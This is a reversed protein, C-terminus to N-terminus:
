AVTHWGMQLWSLRPIIDQEEDDDSEYEEGDVVKPIPRRISQWPSVIKKALKHAKWDTKTPLVMNVTDGALNKKLRPWQSSPFLVREEDVTYPPLMTLTADEVTFRSGMEDHGDTLMKAQVQVYERLSLMERKVRLFSQGYLARVADRKSKGTKAITHKYGACKVYVDTALRTMRANNELPKNPYIGPYVPPVQGSKIKPVGQDHVWARTQAWGFLPENQHTLRFGVHARITVDPADNSPAVEHVLREYFTMMFGPPITVEKLQKQYFALLRPSTLKVFGKNQGAVELHTKPCCLFRQNRSNLNIWGGFVDDGDVSGEAIDRHVLEETPTKDKQRVMMRDFPKEVKRGKLPLVNQSLAEYLAIERIARAFPHHFSSPNGLAGFGGESPVWTPDNKFDDPTARPRFEPSEHMMQWFRDQAEKLAATSAAFQTRVICVGYKELCEFSKDDMAAKLLEENLAGADPVDQEHLGLDGPSPDASLQVPPPAPPPASPGAAPDASPGAARGREAGPPRSVPDYRNPGLRASQVSPGTDELSLADLAPLM